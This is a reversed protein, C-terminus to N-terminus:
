CRTPASRTYRTSYLTSKSFKYRDECKTNSSVACVSAHPANASKPEGLVRRACVCVCEGMMMMM